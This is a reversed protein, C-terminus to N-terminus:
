TDNVITEWTKIDVIATNIPEDWTLNLNRFDSKIINLWTSTPKSCPEQYPANTYNLAKKFATSEDAIIVKGSWELRRKSYHQKMRHSSSKQILGLKQCYEAMKANLVYTGLFKLKGLNVEVIEYRDM